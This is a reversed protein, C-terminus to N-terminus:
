VGPRCAPASSHGVREATASLPSFEPPCPFQRPFKRLAYFACIRLQRCVVKKLKNKQTLSGVLQSPSIEALGVSSCLEGSPPNQMRAAQDPRAVSVCPTQISRRHHTRRATSATVTPVASLAPVADAAVPVSVPWAPSPPPPQGHGGGPVCLQTGPPGTLRTPRVKELLAPM